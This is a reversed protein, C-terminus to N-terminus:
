KRRYERWVQFAMWRRASMVDLLVLNFVPRRLALGFGSRGDNAQKGSGNAQEIFVETM